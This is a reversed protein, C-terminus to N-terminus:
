ACKTVGKVLIPEFSWQEDEFNPNREENITGAKDKNDFGGEFVTLWGKYGGKFRVTMNKEDITWKQKTKLAELYPILRPVFRDRFTLCKDQLSCIYSRNRFGWQQSEKRSGCDELFIIAEDSISLRIAIAGDLCKGNLSLSRLRSVIDCGKREPFNVQQM